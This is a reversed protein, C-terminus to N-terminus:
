FFASIGIKWEEITDDDDRSTLVVYNKYQLRVLIRRTLYYRAGIGVNVLDDTRDESQVLTARPQIEIIGGGLTLFPSLRWDPFPQHVLSATFVYGSSFDGFYEAAEAEVSLNRTFHYAGYVGVADAGGFDGGLIGGEWRRRHYDQFDPHAVALAQGDDLTRAMADIHVWGAKGKRNRVKFWDTRQKLVEVTEFREAIYFVPYGRGPGTRLEIYPDAVQVKLYPGAADAGIPYGGIVCLALLLVIRNALTRTAAAMPANDPSM